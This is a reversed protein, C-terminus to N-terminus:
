SPGAVALAREIAASILGTVGPHGGIAGCYVAEAGAWAIAEPVDQAAHLGDGSFFGAVVTPPRQGELSDRVFPPEELFAASVENFHGTAALRTALLETALASARSGQSGHGVILLRSAEAVFGAGSAAGLAAAIMLAPLGPDLGLPPLIRTPPVPGADRIRQPLVKSVFYGDSMFYPYVLIEEPGEAAVTALAQEITPEGKLVGAGVAAIGAMGAMAEAHAILSRNAAEGGREGHAALILGIRRGSM